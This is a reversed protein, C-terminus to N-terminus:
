YDKFFNNPTLIKLGTGKTPEKSAKRKAELIFKIADNRRNFLRNINTLTNEQKKTKNGRRITKLYNNFDEQSDKAQEITIEGKKIENLFDVPGKKRSFGTKRKKSKTIFILDYYDTKKDLEEIKDLRKNYINKFIEREKLIILKNNYDDAHIKKKESDKLDKLADIQKKEQDEITKIQKEFAKGLPFYTFKAQQIIQKQNSPLIEEGTLYEYKNFKNSSM